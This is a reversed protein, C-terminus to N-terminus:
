EPYRSPLVITKVLKKYAEISAKAPKSIVHLWAITDKTAYSNPVDNDIDNRTTKPFNCYKVNVVMLTTTVDLIKLFLFLCVDTSHAINFKTVINKTTVIQTILYLFNIAMTKNYLTVKFITAM